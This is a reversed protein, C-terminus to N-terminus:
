RLPLKKERNYIVPMKGKWHSWLADDSVLRAMFDAVNIRSTTGADFIANRTPSAYIDYASVKDEDSLGDPRVVVWELLPNDQGVNQRLVDAALENDLHPPILKRIISIVVRQSLPAVEPIDRNSNGTTNMLIFKTKTKTKTASASASASLQLAKYVKELAQTVLKKPQGYIGKFSLNHGLCSIVADCGGIISALDETNMHAIEAEVVQVSSSESMNVPLNDASRVIAIVEINAKLLQTIVLRGTAGTAGLVVVKVVVKNMDTIDERHM